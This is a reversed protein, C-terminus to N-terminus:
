QLETFIESIKASSGLNQSKFKSNENTNNTFEYLNPYNPNHNNNGSGAEDNM